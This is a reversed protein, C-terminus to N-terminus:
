MVFKHRKVMGEFTFYLATFEKGFLKLLQVFEPHSADADQPLLQSLFVKAIYGFTEMGAEQARSLSRSYAGSDIAKVRPDNRMILAHRIFISYPINRDWAIQLLNFVANQKEKVYAEPNVQQLLHTKRSLDDYQGRQQGAFEASFLYDLHARAFEKPTIRTKSPGFLGM